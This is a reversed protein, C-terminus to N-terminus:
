HLAGIQQYRNSRNQRLSLALSKVEPHEGRREPQVLIPAVDQPLCCWLTV